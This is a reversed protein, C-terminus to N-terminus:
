SSLQGSFYEEVQQWNECHVVGPHKKDVNYHWGYNGFFIPQVGYELASMCHGFNDDVLYEAGLLNCTDGKTNTTNFTNICAVADFVDGFHTHLWQETEAQHSEWRSTIAVLRFKEALGSLAHVAGTIAPITSQDLEYLKYFEEVVSEGSHGHSQLVDEFYGKYDGPVQYHVRELEASLKENAFLRFREVSDALVDDIDFAITKRSM